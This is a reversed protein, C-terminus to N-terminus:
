GKPPPTSAAPKYPPRWGTRPGSTGGKVAEADEDQPALDDVQEENKQEHEEM